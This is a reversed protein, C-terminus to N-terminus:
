YTIADEVSSSSWPLNPFAKQFEEVESLLQRFHDKLARVHDESALFKHIAEGRRLESWAKPDDLDVPQWEEKTKPWSRFADIVQRRIASKPNSRLVVGAWLPNDPNNPFWYGILCELDWNGFGTYIIYRQYDNLQAMAKKSSSIKGLIERAMVSVEGDLTENLLLKAGLFNEMAVLDIARFQNGLSMHNEEMFLKLEKALRDSNVYAKLIRCFEFWRTQMFRRDRALNVQVKEYDRTIFVLSTKELDQAAGLHDMYRELQLPGQSSDVKSEILILEKRGGQVLRIAIDPRSDTRHNILKAFEEQTAVCVDEAVRLDTAGISRLWAMTLPWNNRLVQAVIETLFDELPFKERRYLGRLRTFLSM